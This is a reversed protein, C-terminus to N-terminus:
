FDPGVLGLPNSRWSLPEPPTQGREDAHSRFYNPATSCPDRRRRPLLPPHLSPHSPCAALALQRVSLRAFRCRLAARVRRDM